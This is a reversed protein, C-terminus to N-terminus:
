GRGEMWGTDGDMGESSAVGKGEGKGEDRSRWM